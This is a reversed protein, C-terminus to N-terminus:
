RSLRKSTCPTQGVADDLMDEVSGDNDVSFWDTLLQLLNSESAIDVIDEMTGSGDSIESVEGLVDEKVDEAGDSELGNL